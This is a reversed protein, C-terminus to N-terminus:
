LLFVNDTLSCSLKFKSRKNCCAKKLQITNSNLFQMAVIQFRIDNKSIKKQFHYFVRLTQAFKLIQLFRKFGKCPIGIRTKLTVQTMVMLGHFFTYHKIHNYYQQDNIETQMKLFQKVMQASPIGRHYNSFSGKSKSFVNDFYRYLAFFHYQLNVLRNKSQNFKLRQVM